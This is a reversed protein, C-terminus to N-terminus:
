VQGYKIKSASDLISYLVSFIQFAKVAQTKTSVSSGFRVHNSIIDYTDQVCLM